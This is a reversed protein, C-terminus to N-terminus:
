KMDHCHSAGHKHMRNTHGCLPRIPPKTAPSHTVQAMWSRILGSSLCTGDTQNALAIDKKREVGSVPYPIIENSADVDLVMVNSHSSGAAKLPYFRLVHSQLRLAGHAFDRNLPCLVSGPHNTISFGISMSSEPAGRKKSVAM